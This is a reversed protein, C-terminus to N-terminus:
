SRFIKQTFANKQAWIDNFIIFLFILSRISATSLAHSWWHDWDEMRVDYNPDIPIQPDKVTYSAWQNKDEKEKIKAIKNLPDKFECGWNFKESKEKSIMDM